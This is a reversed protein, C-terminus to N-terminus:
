FGQPHVQARPKCGIYDEAKDSGTLADEVDM